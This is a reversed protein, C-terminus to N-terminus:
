KMKTAVNFTIERLERSIRIRTEGASSSQNSEGFFFNIVFKFCNTAANPRQELGHFGKFFFLNITKFSSLM